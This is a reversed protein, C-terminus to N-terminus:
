TILFSRLGTVAKKEDLAGMLWLQQHSMYRQLHIDAEARVSWNRLQMFCDNQARPLEILAM